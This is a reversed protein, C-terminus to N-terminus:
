VYLRQKIKQRKQLDQRHMGGCNHCKKNYDPKIPRGENDKYFPCNRWQFHHNKHNLSGDFNCNHCRGNAIEHVAEAMKRHDTDMDKYKLVEVKHEKKNRPMDGAIRLCINILDILNDGGAAKGNKNPTRLIRNNESLVNNYVDYGYNEKMLQLIKGKSVVGSAHIRESLALDSHANFSANMLDMLIDALPGEPPNHVLQDLTKMAQEPSIASKGMNQLLNWVKDLSNGMTYIQTNYFIQTKDTFLRGLLEQASDMSLGYESILESMERLIINMPATHSSASGFTKNGLKAKFAKEINSNIQQNGFTPLPITNAFTTTVENKLVTGIQSNIIELLDGQSINIKAPKNTPKPLPFLLSKGDNKNPNSKVTVNLLNNDDEEEEDFLNGKMKLGGTAGQARSFTTNGDDKQEMKFTLARREVNANKLEQNIAETPIKRELQVVLADLDDLRRSEDLTLNPYEM